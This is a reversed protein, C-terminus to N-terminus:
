YGRAPDVVNRLPRGDHWRRLNDMFLQTVRQEWGVIDSSSHPTVIVNELDWFPSDAPLPERAFVDLAAGAFSNARLRELLADQDVIGGRSVDILFGSTPLANLVDAGVAGKTSATLPLCIALFDSQAAVEAMADPGYVQDAPETPVPGSARVALVRMGHSAAVAGLAQGVSGFGIVGLTQGQLSRAEYVKWVHDAQQRLYDRMRLNVMLMLCLVHQAMIDGHIGSSSTVTLREPNWPVLHDVGAGGAHIWKLSQCALLAGRPFPGRGIKFCLAAGPQDRELMAELAEYSSCPTISAIDRVPALDRAFRDANGGLVLLRHLTTATDEALDM